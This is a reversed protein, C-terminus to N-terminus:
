GMPAGMVFDEWWAKCASPRVGKATTPSVRRIKDRASLCSVRSARTTLSKSTSTRAPVGKRMALSMETREALHWTRILLRLDDVVFIHTIWDSRGM